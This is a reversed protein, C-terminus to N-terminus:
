GHDPAEWGSGRMERAEEVTVAEVPEARTRLSRRGLLHGVGGAGLLLGLVALVTGVVQRNTWAFAWPARVPDGSLPAYAFWGFTVPDATVLVFVGGVVLAPVLVVTILM